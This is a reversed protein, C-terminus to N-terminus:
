ISLGFFVIYFDVYFLNCILQNIFTRHQKNKIVIVLGIFHVHIVSKLVPFINRSFYIVDLEM